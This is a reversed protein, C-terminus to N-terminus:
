SAKEIGVGLLHGLRGLQLASAELSLAIQADAELSEHTLLELLAITTAGGRVPLLLSSNMGHAAATQLRSDDVADIDTLWTLHPAGLAQDLLSGHRRLTTGVTTAELRDLGHHAIWTAVCELADPKEPLWATVTDWGGESGIVEVTEKLVSRWVAERALAASLTRRASPHWSVRSGVRPQRPNAEEVAGEPREVRGPWQELKREGRMLTRELEEVRAEAAELERTLRENTGLAADREAIATAREARAEAVAADRERDVLGPGAGGSVTLAAASRGRADPLVGWEALLEAQINDADLRSWREIRLLRAAEDRAVQAESWPAAVGCVLTPVAEADGVPFRLVVLAERGQYPGVVYELQVPEEVDDDGREHARPGDVTEGPPLEADTRGLLREETTSLFSTLRPNARVYRGELDKLWVLAPSEDLAGDLLGVGADGLSPM